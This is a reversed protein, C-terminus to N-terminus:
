CLNQSLKIETPLNLLCGSIAKCQKDSKQIFVTFFILGLTERPNIRFMNRYVKPYTQGLCIWVESSYNLLRIVTRSCSSSAIRSAGFEM